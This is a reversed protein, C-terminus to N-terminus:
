TRNTSPRHLTLYYNESRGLRENSDQGLTTGSARSAMVMRVDGLMGGPHGHLLNFLDSRIARVKARDKAWIAVQVGMVSDSLSFADSVVYDSLTVSDVTEPWDDTYIGTATAPYVASPDANWSLPVTADPNAAIMAALGHLAREEFSGLDTV